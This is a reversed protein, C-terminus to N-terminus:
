CQLCLTAAVFHGQRCRGAQLSRVAEQRGEFSVGAVRCPLQAQSSTVLLCHFLAEAACRFTALPIDQVLAKRGDLASAGKPKLPGVAPRGPRSTGSAQQSAAQIGTQAFRKFGVTAHRLGQPLPRDTRSLHQFAMAGDLNSLCPCGIHIRQMELPAQLARAATQLLKRRM